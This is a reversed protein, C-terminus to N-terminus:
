PTHMYTRTLLTSDWDVGSTLRFSPNLIRLLCYVLILYMVIEVSLVGASSMNALNIILNQTGSSWTLEQPIPAGEGIISVANLRATRDFFLLFTTRALPMFALAAAVVGFVLCYGLESLRSPLRARVPQTAPQEIDTTAM